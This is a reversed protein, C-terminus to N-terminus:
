ERLRPPAEWSMVRWDNEPLVIEERGREERLRSNRRFCLPAGAGSSLYRAARPRPGSIGLLYMRSSARIRDPWRPRRRISRRIGAPNRLCSLRSPPGMNLWAHGQPPIQQRAYQRFGVAVGAQLRRGVGALAFAPFVELAQRTLRAAEPPQLRAPSWHSEGGEAENLEVQTHFRRVLLYNRRHMSRSYAHQLLWVKRTGRAPDFQGLRRYIELFVTPTMDETEGADRLIHLATTHVLRHHRKSLVAFADTNGALLEQMLREDGVNLLQAYPVRGQTGSSFSEPELM